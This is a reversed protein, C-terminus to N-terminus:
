QSYYYVGGDCFDNFQQWHTVSYPFGNFLVSVTFNNKAYMWGAPGWAPASFWRCYNDSTGTGASPGPWCAPEEPLDKFTM